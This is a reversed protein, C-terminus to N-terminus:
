NDFFEECEDIVDGEEDDCDVFIAVLLDELDDIEDFDLDALESCSKHDACGFLDALAEDCSDSIEGELDDVSDCIAGCLEGSLVDLSCDEYSDCLGECAESADDSGGGNCGAVMAGSVMLAVLIRALKM